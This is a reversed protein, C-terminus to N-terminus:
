WDNFEAVWRFVLLAVVVAVVVWQVWGSDGLLGSRQPKRRGRLNIRIKAPQVPVSKSKLWLRLREFGRPKYDRALNVNISAGRTAVPKSGREAVSTRLTTTLRMSPPAAVPKSRRKPLVRRHEILARWHEGERVCVLVTEHDQEITNGFAKGVIEWQYRVIAGDTGLSRVKIDHCNGWEVRYAGDRISASLEDRSLATGNPAVHVFDAAAMRALAGYVNNLWAQIWETHFTEITTPM